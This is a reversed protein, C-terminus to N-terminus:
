SGGFIKKLLPKPRGGGGAPAPAPAPAAPASYSTPVISSSGSDPTERIPKVEGIPKNVQAGLGWMKFLPQPARESSTEVAQVPSDSIQTWDPVTSLNVVEFSVAQPNFRESPELISGTEFRLRSVAIIHNLNVIVRSRLSQTFSEELQIADLLSGEGENYRAREVELARRSAAVSRRVADLQRRTNKVEAVALGVGSIINRELDILNIRSQNYIALSRRYRGKQRNNAIPWEMTLGGFASLGVKRDTFSSFNRKFQTGEDVGAYGFEFFLDIIPKLDFRAADALIKGSRMLGVAARRDDRLTLARDLILPTTTENIGTLSVSAPLTGAAYPADLLEGGGLGMALGLSRRAELLAFEAAIRDGQTDALRSEATATEGEPADGADVRLQTLDLFSRSISESSRLLRYDEQASLCNWYAMATNFLSLSIEQRLQWKSAEMDILASDEAARESVAGRSRGLPITFDLDISANNTIGSRSFNARPEVIVGSRFLKTAGLDYSTENGRAATQVTFRDLVRDFTRDLLAITDINAADRDALQSRASNVLRQTQNTDFQDDLFQAQDNLQQLLVLEQASPATTVDANNLGDVSIGSQDLNSIDITRRRTTGNTTEEIEVRGDGKGARVRKIEESIAKLNRGAERQAEIQTDPFPNYTRGHRVNGTFVTDFASKAEQVAARAIELDQEALHITPQRMLTVRLAEGLTVAQGRHSATARAAKTVASSFAQDLKESKAPIKEPTQAGASLAAGAAGALLLRTYFSTSNKM